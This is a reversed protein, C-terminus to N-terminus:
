PNHGFILHSEHKIVLCFYFDREMLIKNLISYVQKQDNKNIFSSLGTHNKFWIKMDTEYM